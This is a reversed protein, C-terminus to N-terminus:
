LCHIINIKSVIVIQYYGLITSSGNPFTFNIIALIISTVVNLM